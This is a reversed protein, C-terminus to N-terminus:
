GLRVTRQVQFQRELMSMNPDRRRPAPGNGESRRARLAERLEEERRRLEPDPQDKEGGKGSGATEAKVTARDGAGGGAAPVAEAEGRESKPAEPASAAKGAEPKEATRDQPGGGDPNVDTKKEEEARM